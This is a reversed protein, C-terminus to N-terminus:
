VNAWTEASNNSHLTWSSELRWNRKLDAYNKFLAPMSENVALKFAERAKTPYMGCGDGTLLTVLLDFHSNVWKRAKPVDCYNIIEQVEEPQLGMTGAMRLNGIKLGVRVLNLTLHAFKPHALWANSLVRYELGCMPTSSYESGSGYETLRYDGARGYYMRRRPDDVGELMAVSTVGAILDCGRVMDEVFHDRHRRAELSSGLGLHVHGGAFRLRFGRPDTPQSVIDGYANLSPKCGLEVEEDTAHQMTIAPVTFTNQITLEATRDYDRAASRIKQLGARITDMLYGHCSRAGIYAEAAFGDRYGYAGTITGTFAKKAEAKTPLFKFAPLLTKRAVGRTVFIEPDTGTSQNPKMLQRTGRVNSYDMLDTVNEVVEVPTKGPAMSSVGGGNASTGYAADFPRGGEVYYLPSGDGQFVEPHWTERRGNQGYTKAEKDPFRFIEGDKVETLLKTIM